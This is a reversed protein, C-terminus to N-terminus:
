PLYEAVIDEGMVECSKLKLNLSKKVNEIGLNNVVPVGEGLIKPSIFLIM